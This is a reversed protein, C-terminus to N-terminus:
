SEGLRLPEAFRGRAQLRSPPGNKSSPPAFMWRTVIERRDEDICAIPRPPPRCARRGSRRATGAADLAHARAAASTLRPPRM